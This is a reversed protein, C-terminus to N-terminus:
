RDEEEKNIGYLSLLILFFGNIMLLTSSIQASNDRYLRM